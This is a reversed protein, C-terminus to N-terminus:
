YAQFTEDNIVIATLKSTNMLTLNEPNMEIEYSIDIIGAVDGSASYSNDRLDIIKDDRYLLKVENTLIKSLYKCILNTLSKKVKLGM